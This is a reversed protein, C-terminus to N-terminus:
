EPSYSGDGLVIQEVLDFLQIAYYRQAAVLYIQVQEPNIRVEALTERKESNRFKVIAKAEPIAGFIRQVKLDIKIAANGPKKLRVQSSTEDGRIILKALLGANTGPGPRPTIGRMEAEMLLDRCRTVNIPLSADVLGLELGAQMTLLLEAADAAAQWQIDGEPTRM